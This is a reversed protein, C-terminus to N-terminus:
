HPVFSTWKVILSKVLNPGVEVRKVFAVGFGNKIQYGDNVLQLVQGPNLNLAVM